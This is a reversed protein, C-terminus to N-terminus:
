LRRIRNTVEEAGIGGLHTVRNLNKSLKIFEQKSILGLRRSTVYFLLEGRSPLEWEDSLVIVFKPDFRGLDESRFTGDLYSDVFPDESVELGARALARRFKSRANLDAAYLGLTEDLRCAQMHFTPRIRAADIREISKHMREVLPRVERASNTLSAGFYLSPVRRTRQRSEPNRPEYVLSLVREYKEEQDPPDGTHLPLSDLFGRATSRM